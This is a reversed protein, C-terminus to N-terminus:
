LRAAGGGREGLRVAGGRQESMLGVRLLFSGRGVERRARGGRREGKESMAGAHSRESRHEKNFIKGDPLHITGALLPTKIIRAM